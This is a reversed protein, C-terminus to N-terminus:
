YADFVPVALRGLPNPVLKIETLRGPDLMDWSWFQVNSKLRYSRILIQVFLYIINQFQAHSESSRECISKNLHEDIGSGNDILQRVLSM